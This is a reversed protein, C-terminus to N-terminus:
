RIHVYDGPAAPLAEKLKRAPVKRGAHTKAWRQWDTWWSGKQETSVRYFDDAHKPTAAATRYSYKNKAPPNIVGAVHGSGALVFRVPGKFIQTAAYTSKWPAIHDDQTSLMYTPTKVQHLDIAIRNVIIGGPDKLRNHLYMNRMYFSHMAAPLRTADSNWYLMDFPFPTKGLLYNQVVFSWILDNARLLNFTMAMDHGDLYGKRNMRYELEEIQEEDIFVELEGADAFDTLTTLYTASKIRGAQKTANLYATTTALLTGGLCYGLTNISKQKTIKEIQNLAEIVGKNMYDDFRTDKYTADPNVWSIMFVTHGQSVLWKVLSNEPSLDLVYYKNIWAPVMLLPTEFVQATTPAYQILEMLENKFVVKGPTAAITEGLVFPSGDSMSIRGDEMDRWLNELGKVLNEGQSEATTRLVEPNTLFFNSPSLADLWQKTYFDVTRANHPTMGDVDLVQQHLHKTLLLYSEKLYDFVFSEEWAADKFRKDYRMANASFEQGIARQTAHQMLQATDNMWQMQMAYLKAPDASLRAQLEAFAKAARLASSASPTANAQRKLVAQLLHHMHQSMQLFRSPWQATASEHTHAQTAANM